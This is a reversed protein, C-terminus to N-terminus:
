FYPPVLFDKWRRTDDETERKLTKFHKNCYKGKGQNSKVWSRCKLPITKKIEKETLKSNIYLHTVSNQTNMKYGSEKSLANSLTVTKQCLCQPRKCLITNDAVRIIKGREKHTNRQYKDCQETLNGAGCHIPASLFSM